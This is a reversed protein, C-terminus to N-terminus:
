DADPHDPPLLNLSLMAPLLFGFTFTVENAAGGSGVMETPSMEKNYVSFAGGHVGFFFGVWFRGFYLVYLNLSWAMVASSGISVVCFLM